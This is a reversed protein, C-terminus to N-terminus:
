LLINFVTSIFMPYVVAWRLANLSLDFVMIAVGRSRLIALFEIIQIKTLNNAQMLLM